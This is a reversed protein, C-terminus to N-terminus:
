IGRSLALLVQCGSVGFRFALFGLAKSARNSPKLNGYVPTGWYLGLGNLDKNSTGCFSCKIPSTDVWNGRCKRQRKWKM